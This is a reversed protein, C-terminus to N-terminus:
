RIEPISVKHFYNTLGRVIGNTANEQFAETKVVNEETQNSLFGLEILIAPVRNERIVFFDGFRTERDEFGTHNIIERHIENALASSHNYFYFTGIGRVHPYDPSSNYHVSIFLDANYLQSYAVRNELPLFSDDLRTLIPIAGLQRLKDALIKGTKITLNKEYYGSVGLTGTDNGGHGADIVIVKDKLPNFKEDTNLLIPDKSADHKIVLWSAVYGNKGSPLAIEYWAGVQKIYPYTAGQDMTDIIEGDISPTAKIQVSQINPNLMVYSNGSNGEMAQVFQSSVWGEINETRIKYWGQMEDLIEVNTNQHLQGIVNNESGPGSRVNLNDVMVQGDIALIYNNGTFIFLFFLSLFFISTKKLLLGGVNHLNIL